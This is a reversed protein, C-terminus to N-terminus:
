GRARWSVSTPSAAKSLHPVSTFREVKRGFVDREDRPSVTAVNLLAPADGPQPWVATVLGALPGIGASEGSVVDVVDGVEPNVM